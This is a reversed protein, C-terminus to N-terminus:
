LSRGLKDVTRTCISLYPRQDPVECSWSADFGPPCSQSKNSISDSEKSDTGSSSEVLSAFDHIVEAAHTAPDVTTYTKLVRGDKGVLYSIRKPVPLLPRDAGVARALSRDSDSLLLFPLGYKTSFSANDKPRDYSVGYVRIGLAALESWHDRLECAERTCGPTDAKPYFYLLYPLGALDASRVISGDHAQLAFDVFPEGPALMHEGEGAVAGSAGILICALLLWKKM